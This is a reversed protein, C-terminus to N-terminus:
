EHTGREMVRPGGGPRRELRRLVLVLAAIVLLIVVLSVALGLRRFQLEELAEWGRAEAQRAIELGEDIHAAVAEVDNGHVAARAEVLSQMAATLHFQAEGVPMGAHEARQLVTEAVTRRDTLREILSRMAAAAKGGPEDAAHCTGCVADGAVGLMRYTAPEIRHEGHCTACGLLGAEPFVLAHASRDYIEAIVGHCQRCANAVSEVGPPAAGHDGHCDNCVPATLDGAESVRRWHVSGKYEAVQGTPIGYPAMHAEDAHCRGCTDPIRLPHVSASPDRPSRIGHPTHCDACAAVRVDGRELLRQGHVSTRYQALQDIPISPNYTRMFRGDSHCRACMQPVQPKAPVGIYGKAPDMAFVTPDAPDGGHCAACSFGRQQHVDTRYQAAPASLTREELQAHCTACEDAGAPARQVRHADLSRAATLLVVLMAAIALATTTANGRLVPTM